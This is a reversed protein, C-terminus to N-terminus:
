IWKSSFSKFTLPLVAKQGSRVEEHPQGPGLRCAARRMCSCPEPRKDQSGEPGCQGSCVALAMIAGTRTHGMDLHVQLLM